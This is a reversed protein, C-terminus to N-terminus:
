RCRHYITKSKRTLSRQYPTTTRTLTRKTLMVARVRALDSRHLGMGTSMLGPQDTLALTDLPTCLPGVDTAPHLAGDDLRNAAVVPFDRKIIQGLNGSAALHHHMGGDTIVFRTGRSIKVANIEAVYVGGPGALFRGPEVIVKATRLLPHAQLQRSLEPM